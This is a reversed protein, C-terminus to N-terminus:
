RLHAEKTSKPIVSCGRQVGWRLVVQAPHRGLKKAIGLVTGDQLHMCGTV